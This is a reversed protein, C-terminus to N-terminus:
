TTVGSFHAAVAELVQRWGDVNRERHWAQKEAPVDLKTFGSEVVTLRTGGEDPALTFEVLTQAGPV